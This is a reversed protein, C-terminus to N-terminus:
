DRSIIPHGLLNLYVGDFSLSVKLIYSFSGLSIIFFSIATGVAGFLMIM